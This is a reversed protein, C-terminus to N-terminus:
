DDDQREFPLAAIAREHRDFPSIDPVDDRGSAITAAIGREACQRELCDRHRELHISIPEIRTATHRM